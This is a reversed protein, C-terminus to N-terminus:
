VGGINYTFKKEVHTWMRDIAIALIAGLGAGVILYEKWFMNLGASILVGLGGAGIFGALTATSVVYVSSTKIGNIIVPMALPIEVEKLLELKPTGMGRAAEKVAPDVEMIGVITNRTIPLLSQVILIIIAPKYGIGLLPMAVAVMAFPPITQLINLVNLVVFGAHRFKPRTLFIGLPVSIVIAIFLTVVVLGLHIVVHRPAIELLAKFFRDWNLLAM